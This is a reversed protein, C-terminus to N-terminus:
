DVKWVESHIRRLKVGEFTQVLTLDDHSATHLTVNVKSMTTTRAEQYSVQATWPHLWSHKVAFENREVHSRVGLLGMGKAAMAVYDCFEQKGGRIKAAPEASHDDISVDLDEHLRECYDASRGEISLGELSDLFRNIRSESLVFFGAGYTALIAVVIIYLLKKVYRDQRRM